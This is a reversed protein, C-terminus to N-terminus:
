QKHTTFDFKDAAKYRIAYILNHWVLSMEYPYILMSPLDEDFQNAAKHGSVTRLIISLLLSLVAVGLLIVNLMLAGVVIGAIDILFSLHLAIQDINFWLRHSTSRSLWKRTEAYFIHKNLWSTKSPEDDITWAAEDTILVATGDEGYKNVLFDYEGRILHLNGRFGEQAMFDSKRLMINHSLTRYPTGNTDERMLYYAMNLREFRKFASTDEDYKGYGIVLHNDGDLCGQAMGELWHDSAPRTYAETFLIWETKAAKVGLTMALKKRSVYRSSDPIYTVYLSANSESNGDLENALRRLLDDTEHESKDIVVIVQFGAPYKQGLILPLNRELKEPEDHPTLVISLPPLAEDAQQEGDERRKFRIFPACLSSLVGVVLLVIGSIITFSDIIVLDSM